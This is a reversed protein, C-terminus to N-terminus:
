GTRPRAHRPIVFRFRSGRGPASDVTVLGEHLALIHKVISLGLGTGGKERSRAKDVRYFREFIRDLDEAPIGPGTDRVTCAVHSPDGELTVTVAGRETYKLANDLLNAVVQEIRARDAEVWEPEGADLGLVLGSHAARDALGALQREILARLDFREVRLRAEPRELESLSLLDDVLEQLRTAQDRIIRVFGERHEPDELGGELLTEAYGRVSTLPTKVEHSVNAVFDRRVRDLREAESQDRLVLLVEHEREGALPTATVRLLREHPAWLRLEQEITLGGARARALLDALEPVRVVDEFRTGPEPPLALGLVTALSRNAHAVTGDADLLAVGDGIHALVLERQDRERQLSALRSRLEGAMDNLASGLRGIEDTPLARARIETEGAGLHRAVRELEAIRRTTRGLLWYAVVAALLLMLAAALWLMRWLGADFRALRALPEALRLVAVGPVGRVPVASYLLEVGLTASLRTGHGAHGDLASRVEPRSAHNELAPLRERSVESDGVVRGDAAILTVRLDLRHGLADACAPWDGHCDQLEAVALRAIRGLQEDGRTVLWARGAQATFLAALGLACALVVLLVLFLRVRLSRNM